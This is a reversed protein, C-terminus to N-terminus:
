SLNMTSIRYAPFFCRQREGDWKSDTWFSGDVIAQAAQQYELRTPMLRRGNVAEFPKLPRKKWLDYLDRWKIDYIHSWDCLLEKQTGEVSIGYATSYRQLEIPSRTLRAPDSTSGDFM